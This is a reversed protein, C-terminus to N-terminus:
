IQKCKQVNSGSQLREMVFQEYLERGTKESNLMSYFVVDKFIQGLLINKWQENDVSEFSLCHDNLVDLLSSVYNNQRQTLHISNM